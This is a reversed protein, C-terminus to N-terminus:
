FPLYTHAALRPKSGSDFSTHVPLPSLLALLKSFLSQPHLVLLSVATFSSASFFLKVSHMNFVSSLHPRILLSPVSASDHSFHINVGSEELYITSYSEALRQTKQFIQHSSKKSLYSSVSGRKFDQDWYHTNFAKSTSAMPPILIRYIMGLRFEKWPLLWGKTCLQSAKNGGMVSTCSGKQILPQKGKYSIKLAKNPQQKTGM